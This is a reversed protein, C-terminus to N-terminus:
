QHSKIARAAEKREQTMFWGEDQRVERTEMYHGMVLASLQWDNTAVERAPISRSGNMGQGCGKKQVRRM